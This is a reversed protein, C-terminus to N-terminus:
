RGQQPQVVRRARGSANAAGGELRDMYEMRSEGILPAPPASWNVPADKIIIEDGWYEFVDPRQEATREHPRLVIDVTAPITRVSFLEIGWVVKSASAAPFGSAFMPSNLPLETLPQAHLREEQPVGCQDLYRLWFTPYLPVPPSDVAIKASVTAYSQDWRDLEANVSVDVIACSMLDQLDPQLVAKASREGPPLVKTHFALQVTTCDAPSVRGGLFRMSIALRVTCPGQECAVPARLVRREDFGIAPSSPSDPSGPAVTTESAIDLVRVELRLFPPRSARTFRLKAEDIAIPLPEGSRVEPRAHLAAAIGNHLYQAWDSESVRGNVRLDEVFSGWAEIWPAETDAQRSLAEAILGQVVDDSISKALARATLEDLASTALRSGGLRVELLLVATPLRAQITPKTWDKSLAVGVTAVTALGLLAGCVLPVTRRQRVGRTIAWGRTLDAGCEPCIGSCIGHVEFRCRRCADRGHLLRGRVGIAILALALIGSTSVLIILSM